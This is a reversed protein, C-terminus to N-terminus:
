RHDEAPLEVRGEALLRGAQYVHECWRCLTNMADAAAVAMEEDTLNRIEGPDVTQGPLEYYPMDDADFFIPYREHTMGDEKQEWEELERIPPKENADLNLYVREAPAYEAKRVTRRTPIEVTRRLVTQGDSDVINVALGTRCGYDWSERLFEVNKAFRVANGPLIKM